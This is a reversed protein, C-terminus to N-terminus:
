ISLTSGKMGSARLENRIVSVLSTGRVEMSMNRGDSMPSATIAAAVNDQQAVSMILEGSNVNATLADGHYSNGPVIGGSAYSGATANKIGTITAIMTALGTVAFAIWGWPGMESAARTQAIGFASATNGIASMILGAVKAGPDDIQQLAGGIGTFANAVGNLHKKTEDSTKSLSTLSKGDVEYTIPIPEFEWSAIQEDISTKMELMTETSVGLRIALPQVDMQEQLKAIMNQAEEYAATTTAEHLRQKWMSLQEELQAMSETTAPGSQIAKTEIKPATFEKAAGGGSRGGGGTGTDASARMLRSDSALRDYYQQAANNAGAFADQIGKLVPDDLESLNILAEYRDKIDERKWTTREENRTTKSLPDYVAEVSTTAFQAKLKAADRKAAEKGDAGMAAYPAVWQGNKARTLDKLQAYAATKRVSASRKYYAAEEQELEKLAKKSDEVDIGQRINARLKSRRLNFESQQRMDSADFTALADMANYAEKALRAVDKLNKIFSDLSGMTVSTWFGRQISTAMAVTRGYADAASDTSTMVKKFGEMALSLAGAASAMKLLSVGGLADVAGRLSGLSSTTQPLAAGLDKMRAEVQTISGQLAKGFQSQKEAASLQNFRTKMNVLASNLEGMQGRVDKAKTQIQGLSRAFEIDEKSAAAFSKGQKQVEATVRNLEFVANKLSKDWSATDAVFREVLAM